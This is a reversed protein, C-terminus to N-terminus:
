MQLALPAMLGMFGPAGQAICVDVYVHLMYMIRSM